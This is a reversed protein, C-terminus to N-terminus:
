SSPLRLAQAEINAGGNSYTFSIKNDDDPDVYVENPLFPGVLKTKGASILVARDALALGDKEFPTAITVTRTTSSHTNAFAMFLRGRDASTQQLQDGGASVPSTTLNLGDRLVEDITFDAM